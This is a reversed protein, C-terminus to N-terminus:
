NHPRCRMAVTQSVNNITSYAIKILSHQSSLRMRLNLCMPGNQLRPHSLFRPLKSFNKTLLKRKELVESKNLKSQAFVSHISAMVLTVVCLTKSMTERMNWSDSWGIDISNVTRQLISKNILKSTRKLVLFKWFIFLRPLNKGLM